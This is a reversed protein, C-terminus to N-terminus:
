ESWRQWAAQRSTGAVAAVRAWSGSEALLRASRGLAEGLHASLTLLERFAEPEPSAALRDIAARAADASQALPLDPM